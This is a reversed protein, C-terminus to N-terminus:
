NNNSKKENEKQHLAKNSSQLKGLKAQEQAIELAKADKSRAEDSTHYIISGDANRLIKGTNKDTVIYQGPHIKSEEMTYQGNYAEQLRSIKKQVGEIASDSAKTMESITQDRGFFGRVNDTVQTKFGERGKKTLLGVVSSGYGEDHLKQKAQTADVTNDVATKRQSSTTTKLGRRVGGFGSLAAGFTARGLLKAREARIKKKQEESMDKTIKNEPNSNYDWLKGIGKRANKQIAGFGVAAAGFGRRLIAGNGWTDDIMKKASLNYSFGAAGGLSPFIEKLLNPVKKVFLLTAVIMISTTYLKSFGSSEAFLNGLIDANIILEVIFKAFYVIALRLFFDLFTTVCQTGWKKLQEDGKPTIYMMIPIPAIVELYALQILRVAVQFTFMFGTYLCLVGVIVAVLGDGDFDIIYEEKTGGGKSVLEKLMEDESAYESKLNLCISAGSDRLEGSNLRINEKLIENNTGLINNCLSYIESKSLGPDNNIRYFSTFFTSSLNAGFTKMGNETETYEGGLIVKELIQSDLLKEQISFAANFLYQTSGLLVISVVVKIVIKGVGKSKDLMVEPNVIYQVFAFIIRFLMFIGIILGIKNFIPQVDSDYLLRATGLNYFVDYIFVILRYIIDCLTLMLGRLADRATSVIDLMLM